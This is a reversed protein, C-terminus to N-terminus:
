LPVMVRPAIVLSEVPLIRLALAVIIALIGPIAAIAIARVARSLVRRPAGEDIHPQALTTM